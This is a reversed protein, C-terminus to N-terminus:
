LAAVICWEAWVRLFALAAATLMAPWALPLMVRWFIRWESCGLSRAADGYARDVETVRSRSGLVVVPLAALTGVAAGAQWPFAPRLILYAALILPVAWLVILAGLLAKRGPRVRTSLRYALWLGLVLGGATSVGAVQLSLWLKPTM